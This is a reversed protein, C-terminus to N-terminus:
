ERGRRPRRRLWRPSAWLKAFARRTPALPLWDPIRRKGLWYPKWLAIWTARDLPVKGHEAPETTVYSFGHTNVWTQAAIWTDPAVDANAPGALQDIMFLPRGHSHSLELTAVRQGNQRVSWLRCYNHVVADGYSRLCNQMAEAEAAIDVATALPSFEYGLVQQPKLWSTQVTEDGMNVHLEVLELWNVAASFAAEFQLEPHWHSRMLSRAFSRERAALWAWLCVLRLRRPTIKRADRVFERAVWIAIEPTGQESAQAVRVLWAAALEPKAPVHNAIHCVFDDGDPLPPLRQEFAEPPLSRVWMPVGALRGLIALRAGAVVRAIVPEPDFGAKPVALAFLLAPFTVALDALWVHRQALKRVAPQRSKPYRSLNRDIPM